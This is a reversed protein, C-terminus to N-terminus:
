RLWEEFMADTLRAPHGRWVVKGGSVVAVAPIGSVNYRSSMTGDEKAAPFTLGYEDLYARVGEETSSRTVKTLGIVQVGRSRFKGYTVELKPLERKGHPDWTEFFVYVVLRASPDASGQYWYTTALPGADTGFLSLETTLRATRKAARTDPYQAALQRLLEKAEDYRGAEFAKTAQASLETAAAEKADDVPAPAGKPQAAQVAALETEVATLRAETATLREEVETFRAKSVCGAMGVLMLIRRM